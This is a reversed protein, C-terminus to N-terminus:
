RSVGIERLELRCLARQLDGAASFRTYLVEVENLFWWFENLKLSGWSFRIWPPSPRKRSISSKTPACWSFLKEVQADVSEQRNGQDVLLLQFTLERPQPGIFEPATATPEYCSEHYEWKARKVVSLPSPNFPLEMRDSQRAM